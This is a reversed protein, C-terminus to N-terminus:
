STVQSVYGHRNYKRLMTLVMINLLMTEQFKRSTVYKSQSLYKPYVMMLSILLTLNFMSMQKWLEFIKKTKSVELEGPENICIKAMARIYWLPFDNQLFIQSSDHVSGHLTRTPDEYEMTNQM